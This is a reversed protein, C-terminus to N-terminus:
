DTFRELMQRFTLNIRESIPKASKPISHQWFRQTRSRMVLLDGSDLDFDITKLDDRFRHRLKFRRTAGLSLSAIATDKDIYHEDDSHWGVSDEGNRYLNLLAANFKESLHAEIAEKLQLLEDNWKKPSRRIGSYQYPKVGHWSTLRPEKWTNDYVTIKKQEWDINRRLKQFYYDARDEDLFKPFYDLDLDNESLRLEEKKFLSQQSM